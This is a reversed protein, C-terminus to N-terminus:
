IERLYSLMNQYSEVVKTSYITFLLIRVSSPFCIVKVLNTKEDRSPLPTCYAAKYTERIVASALPVNAFLHRFQRAIWSLEEHGHLLVHERALLQLLADSSEAPSTGFTRAVGQIGVIVMSSDYPAATGHRLMLRSAVNIDAAEDATLTKPEEVWQAILPKLM